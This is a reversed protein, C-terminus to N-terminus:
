KDKGTFIDWFSKSDEEPNYTIQYQKAYIKQLVDFLKQMHQEPYMSKVRFDVLRLSEYLSAMEVYVAKIKTKRLDSSASPSSPDNDKSYIALAEKNLELIKDITQAIKNDILKLLEPIELKEIINNTLMKSSPAYVYAKFFDVWAEGKTAVGPVTAKDVRSDQKPEEANVSILTFSILTASLLKNM